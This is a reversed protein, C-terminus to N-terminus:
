AKRLLFIFQLLNCIYISKNLDKVCHRRWRKWIRQCLMSHATRHQQKGQHWTVLMRYYIIPHHDCIAVHQTTPEIVVGAAPRRILLLSHFPSAPSTVECSGLPRHVCQDEESHPVVLLVIRFWKIVDCHDHHFCKLCLQRNVEWCGRCTSYEINHRSLLQPMGTLTQSFIFAGLEWPSDANRLLVDELNELFTFPLFSLPPGSKNEPELMHNNSCILWPYKIQFDHKDKFGHQSLSLRSRPLIICSSGFAIRQKQLISNLTQKGM